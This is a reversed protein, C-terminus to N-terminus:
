CGGSTTYEELTDKALTCTQEEKSTNLQAGGPVKWVSWVPNSQVDNPLTAIHFGDYDGGDAITFDQPDTIDETSTAATAVLGTVGGAQAHALTDYVKLILESQGDARMLVFLDPGVTWPLGCTVTYPPLGGVSNIGVSTGCMNVVQCLATEHDFGPKDWVWSVQM